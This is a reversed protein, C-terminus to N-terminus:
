DVSLGELVNMARTGEREFENVIAECEHKLKKEAEGANFYIWEEVTMGKEPSTLEKGKNLLRGVTNEKDVSVRPTGLVADLDVATWPTSSQLGALVNRKSPSAHLPTAAMPALPIRKAKVSTAPKSSPPQNEADSSQPSPSPSLAPQKASPAPSIVKAPTSPPQALSQAPARAPEDERVLPLSEPEEAAPLEPEDATTVIDVEDNEQEEVNPTPKPADVSERPKKPPRGRGRKAPAEAPKAEDAMTSSQSALSAKSPRGRGRKVPQETAQPQPKELAETAEAEASAQSALSLKSPRGRGRKVPPKASPEALVDVSEQSAQSALSLKPPRGRGRKPAATAVAEQEPEKEPEPEPNKVVTDTSGISIDQPEEAPKQAPEEVHQDPIEPEEPPPSAAKTKKSKVQKSAKRTGAKRGKKPVQLQEPEPEPEPEVQPEPEPQHEYAPEEVAMEKQLARLEEEVDADDAEAAAPAFMAYDTSKRAAASMRSRNAESESDHALEDDSWARALDAELQREIEEDDPFEEPPGRLSAMSATSVTSIIRSKANSSKKRAGAKQIPAPADIMESDDPIVTSADTLTSSRTRTARKKPAPGESVLVVSSENMADSTRKKGRTTKAPKPPSIVPEPEPEPVSEVVPPDAKKSKSRSSKAAAGKRAKTKRGGQTMTSATTLVSDEVEATADAASWAESAVTAVSQGSLRSAKSGRAAKSRSTKKKPGGFQASLAFFACGPARRYHEDYPKDNREWGDLALDCYACTTMDDYELSPTYKWGAEALQKTKCKWGKKGEHPWRGGFTAKRADLIYDQNPDERSYDGVEAEIAAMIAWGCGPMHNLHELIPDDGAEWGDLGKDCLYCVVNDTSDPSPDFYFGAKALREHTIQKHPWNLAKGRGGATSGRKKTTKQFSALRAEYAFYRDADSSAM